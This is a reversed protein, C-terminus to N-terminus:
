ARTKDTINFDPGITITDTFVIVDGNTVVVDVPTNIEIRVVHMSPKTKGPNIYGIIRTYKGQIYSLPTRNKM